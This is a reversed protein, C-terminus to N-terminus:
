ERQQAKSIPEAPGFEEPLPPPPFHRHMRDLPESEVPEYPGQPGIVHPTLFILLESNVKAMERHKFIEGLIPIDGLGPVRRIIERDEERLIGSILFTKGDELVIRTTTERRDVIAGGFLTRGPIISSVLLNVTLDINREKTIHPRVRLRIGVPKYEFGQTQGGVDTTQTSSIFPVDQGDFFEAEVNDATFVKPESKIKLDTVRGLLSLLNNVDMSFTFTHRKDHVDLWDYTFIGSLANDTLLPDGSVFAGTDTSFRYGLSMADELTVEAIVAKILVQQGPRDLEAIFNEIADAYEEPAAVMLLNQEVNPVIRLKGVLNSPQRTKIMDSPPNQWWFQMVGTGAQQQQPNRSSQVNGQQNRQFPSEMEGTDEFTGTLSRRLISAPTGPANLLANLQEALTEADAFKLQIIRPIGVTQPRDIEAIMEEIVRYNEENKSVVILKGTDPYAEFRFQGFLRGVPSASAEPMDDYWWYPMMNNQEKKTFLSDLLERTKDPDAYRLEFIRPKAEEGSLPQDWEKIQKEIRTMTEPAAVVTVSNNRMNYTVTVKDRESEGGRSYYYYYSYRRTSSEGFLEKINESVQQADANELVFTKTVRVGTDPIDIEKMWSKVISRNQESGVLMIRRSTAFPFLKLASRLGEDPYSALMSNLQNVLEEADGYQVEVIDTQVAPPKPQDLHILWTEIQALVNAPAAVVIASRRPEPILLVPTKEAKVMVAGPSPSPGGSGGGPMMMRERDSPRPAGGGGTASIAKVDVGLYGAILKELLPIVEYVDVHKINFVRLEGGAVGPTDVERIISEIVRLREVTAVAMLKGAGTDATIIGYSPLLPKAVEVLRAPDAHHVNFIKRIIQSPPSIGALDDDAGVTPIQSQSVQAIPILHVTQLREEIAVGVEHLATALIALADEKPLPKPNMLNVQISAVDKSIIIPKGLQDTLFKAVDNMSAGSFSIPVLKPKEEEPPQTPASAVSTTTPQTSPATAPQTEAAPKLSVDASAAAPPGVLEASAAPQTGATQAQAQNIM